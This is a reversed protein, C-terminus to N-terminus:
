DREAGRQVSSKLPALRQNLELALPVFVLPSLASGKQGRKKMTVICQIFVSQHMINWERHHVFINIISSGNSCDTGERAERGSAVVSPPIQVRAVVM